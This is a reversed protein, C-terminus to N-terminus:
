STDPKNRSALWAQVLIIVDHMRLLGLAVLTPIVIDYRYLSEWLPTLRWPSFVEAIWACLPFAGILVVEVAFLAVRFRGGGGGNSNGNRDPNDAV